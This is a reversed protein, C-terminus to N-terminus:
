EFVFSIVGIFIGKKINRVNYIIYIVYYVFYLSKGLFYEYLLFFDWLLGFLGFFLFFM